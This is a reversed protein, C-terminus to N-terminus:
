VPFFIVETTGNATMIGFKSVAFEITNVAAASNSGISFFAVGETPLYSGRPNPAVPSQIMNRLTSGFYNPNPCSQLNLFETYRTNSSISGDFIYTCASHYFGPAYDGSGTPTTYVTIFPTNDNSTNSGNFFSVYLGLIDSVIMNPTAGIYWNIKFGATTNKFYWSPTYAYQQAITTTPTQPPRGDAYIAASVYQNIVNTSKIQLDRISSLVSTTNFTLDTSSLVSIDTDNTITLNEGLVCTKTIASSGVVQGLIPQLASSLDSTNLVGSGDANTSIRLTQSSLGAAYYTTGVTLTATDTYVQVPNGYGAINYPPGSIPTETIVFDAGSITIKPLALLTTSSTSKDIIIGAETISSILQPAQTNNSTWFNFGGTQTGSINLFDSQNGTTGTIGLHQYTGVSTGTATIPFTTLLETNNINSAIIGQHSINGNIDSFQLITNPPINM